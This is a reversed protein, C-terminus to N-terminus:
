QMNAAIRESIKGKTEVLGPFLIYIVPILARLLGGPFMMSAMGSDRWYEFHLNGMEKSIM